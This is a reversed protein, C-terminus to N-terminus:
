GPVAGAHGLGFTGGSLEFGAVLLLDVGGEIDAVARNTRGQSSSATASLTRPVQRAGQDSRNCDEQLLRIEM